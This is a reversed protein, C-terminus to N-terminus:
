YRSIDRGFCRCRIWDFLLLLKTRTSFMESQM